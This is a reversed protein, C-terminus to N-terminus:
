HLHGCEVRLNHIIKLRREQWQESARGSPYKELHLVEIFVCHECDGHYCFHKCDCTICGTVSNYTTKLWDGFEGQIIVRDHRREQFFDDVCEGTTSDELAAEIVGGDGDIQVFEANFKPSRTTNKVQDPNSPSIDEECTEGADKDLALQSEVVQEITKAQKKKAGKNSGKKGRTVIKLPQKCDPPRHARRMLFMVLNEGPQREPTNEIRKRSLHLKLQKCEPKSLTTLLHNLKNVDTLDDESPLSLQFGSPGGVASAIKEKVIAVYSTFIRSTTPWYWDISTEKKGLVSDHSVVEKDEVLLMSYLWTARLNSVRQKRRSTPPLTKPPKYDSVQRLDELVQDMWEDSRSPVVAFKSLPDSLKMHFRGDRAVAALMLMPNRSEKKPDKYKDLIERHAKKIEGGRSEMGQTSTMDGPRKSCHGGLCNPNGNLYTKKVYPKIHEKYDELLGDLANRWTAFDGCPICAM